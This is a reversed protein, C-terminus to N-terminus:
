RLFTSCLMTGCSILLCIRIEADTRGRCNTERHMAKLDQRLQTLEVEGCGGRCKYDPLSLSDALSVSCLDSQPILTFDFLFTTFILILFPLAPRLYFSSLCPKFSSGDIIGRQMLSQGKGGVVGASRRMRGCGEIGWRVSSIGCVGGAKLLDVCM